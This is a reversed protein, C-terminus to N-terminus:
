PATTTGDGDPPGVPGPPADVCGQASPKFPIWEGSEGVHRRCGILVPVGNQIQYQSEILGGTDADSVGNRTQSVITATAGPTPEPLVGVVSDSSIKPNTLDGIDVVHGDKWTLAILIQGSKEGPLALYFNGAKDTSFREIGATLAKVGPPASWVLKGDAGVVVLKFNSKGAMPDGTRFLALAAGDPSFGNARTV